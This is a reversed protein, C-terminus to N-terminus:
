PQSISGTFAEYVRAAGLHPRGKAPYPGTRQPVRTTRREASQTSQEAKASLVAITFLAQMGVLRKVGDTVEASQATAPLPQIQGLRPLLHKALPLAFIRAQQ